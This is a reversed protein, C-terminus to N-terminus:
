VVGDVQLTDEHMVGDSKKPELDRPNRKRFCARMSSAFREGCCSYHLISHSGVGFVRLPNSRVFLVSQWKRNQTIAGEIGIAAWIGTSRSKRRNVVMWNAWTRLPKRVQASDVVCCWCCSVANRRGLRVLKGQEM